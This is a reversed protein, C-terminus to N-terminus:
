PGIATWSGSLRVYLRDDGGIVVVNNRPNNEFDTGLDADTPPTADVKPIEPAALHANLVRRLDRLLPVIERDMTEVLNEDRLTAQSLEKRVGTNYSELPM